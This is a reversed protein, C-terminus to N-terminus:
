FGVSLPYVASSGISPVDDIHPPRPSSRRQRIQGERVFIFNATGDKTADLAEAGQARVCVKWHLFLLDPKVALLRESNEEQLVTRTRSSCLEWPCLDTRRWAHCEHKLDELPNSNHVTRSENGQM